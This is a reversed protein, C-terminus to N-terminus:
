DLEDSSEVEEEPLKYEDIMKFYAKQQEIFDQLQPDKFLDQEPSVARRKQFNLLFPDFM